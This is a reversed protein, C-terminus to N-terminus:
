FACTRPSAAYAVPTKMLAMVQCSAVGQFASSSALSKEWPRALRVSTRGHVRPNNPTKLGDNWVLQQTKLWREPKPELTGIPKTM